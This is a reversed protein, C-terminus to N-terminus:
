FVFYFEVLLGFYLVVIMWRLLNALGVFCFLYFSMTLDSEFLASKKLLM